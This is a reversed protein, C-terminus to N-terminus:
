TMRLVSEAFCVIQDNKM